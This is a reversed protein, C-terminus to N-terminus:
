TGTLLRISAPNRIHQNLHPVIKMFTDVKCAYIYGQDVQHPKALTIFKLQALTVDDCLKFNPDLTDAATLHVNNVGIIVVGYTTKIGTTATSEHLVVKYFIKPAPLKDNGLLFIDKLKNERTNKLQLVGYTGTYVDM